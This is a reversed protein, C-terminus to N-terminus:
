GLRILRSDLGLTSLHAQVPGYLEPDVIAFMNPNETLIRAIVEPARAYDKSIEYVLWGLNTTTSSSQARLGWQWRAALVPDMTGPGPIYVTSAPQQQTSSQLLRPVYTPVSALLAKQVTMEGVPRVTAPFGAKDMDPLSFGFAQTAAVALVSLGAAMGIKRSNADGAAPPPILAATAAIALPWALLLVAILYKYFYYTPTAHQLSQTIALYTGLAVPVLLGLSARAVDLRETRLYRSGARAAASINAIGLVLVLTLILVAQGLDPVVIGGLAELIGQSTRILPILQILPLVIGIATIAGFGAALIWWTRGYAGPNRMVGWLKTTVIVVLLSVLLLWNNCIGVLGAGVVAVAIVPLRRQVTLLTL